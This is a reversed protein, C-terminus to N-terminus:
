SRLAVEDLLLAEWPQATKKQLTATLSRQGDSDAELQWFSEDCDIREM